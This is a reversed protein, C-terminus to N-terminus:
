CAIIGIHRGDAPYLAPPTLDVQYGDLVACEKLPMCNGRYTGVM